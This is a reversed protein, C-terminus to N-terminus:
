EGMTNARGSLTKHPALLVPDWRELLPVISLTTQLLAEISEAIFSARDRQLFHGDEEFNISVAKTGISFLNRLRKISEKEAENTRDKCTLEKRDHFSNALEQSVGTEILKDKGSYAVLVRVNKAENITNISPLLSAFELNCVTQTCMAARRGTDIRYGFVNNTLFKVVPNLIMEAIPGLSYFWMFLKIVWLPRIGKHPRLGTPNLLVLGCVKDTNRAAVKIANESGRSHGMMVVRSSIGLTALLQHVFDDREVNDYKLRPDDPTLGFGPMNVAIFRIGKERVFPMVYKFDKHSGPAGHIGIVTGLQSGSPLTDQFVAELDIKEDSSTTFQVRQSRLLPDDILPGTKTHSNLGNKQAM